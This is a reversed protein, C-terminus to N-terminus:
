ATRQYSTVSLWDLSSYNGKLTQLKGQIYNSRITARKDKAWQDVFLCHRFVMCSDPLVSVSVQSNHSEVRSHSLMLLFFM